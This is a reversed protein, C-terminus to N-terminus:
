SSGAELRRRQHRGVGKSNSSLRGDAPECRSTRKTFDETPETEPDYWKPDTILTNLPTHETKDFEVGLRELYFKDWASASELDLTEGFRSM